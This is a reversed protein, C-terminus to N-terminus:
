GLLAAMERMYAPIDLGQPCHATCSGCGICAAPQKEEPLAKLRLLRWVAMDRKGLAAAEDRYENYASLLAPIDLGQPCNDCCYRCGTCPVAIKQRLLRSIKALGALEEESLDPDLNATRLNEETQRMDSMGSLVVAVGPLRMVFRLAWAAPSLEAGAAFSVWCFIRLTNRAAPAPPMMWYQSRLPICVSGPCTAATIVARHSPAAM